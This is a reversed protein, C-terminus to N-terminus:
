QGPHGDHRAGRARAPARGASPARDRSVQPALRARRRRPRRPRVTVRAHMEIAVGCLEGEGQHFHPDGASFMAGPVDVGLLLRSGTTLQKVDMNGGNERPPVTRLGEDAPPGTTPVASKPDPPLVSGGRALLEAERATFEELRAQSPAVAAVGLFPM